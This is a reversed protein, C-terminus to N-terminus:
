THKPTKSVQSQSAQKFAKVADASRAADKQKKGRARSQPSKDGM